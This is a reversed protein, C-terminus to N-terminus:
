LLNIDINLSALLLIPDIRRQISYSGLTPILPINSVGVCSQFCFSVLVGTLSLLLVNNNMSMVVVKEKREEEQQM